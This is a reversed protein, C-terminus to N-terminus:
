CLAEYDKGMYFYHIQTELELIENMRNICKELSFSTIIKAFKFKAFVGYIFIYNELVRDVSELLAPNLSFLRTKEQEKKPRIMGIFKLLVDLKQELLDKTKCAQVILKSTKQMAILSECIKDKKSKILDGYHHLIPQRSGIKKVKIYSYGSKETSLLRKVYNSWATKILTFSSWRPSYNISNLFCHENILFKKREL